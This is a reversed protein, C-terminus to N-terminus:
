WVLNGEIKVIWGFNFGREVRVVFARLRLRLSVTKGNKKGKLVMGSKALWVVWKM